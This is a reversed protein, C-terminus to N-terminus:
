VDKDETKAAVEFANSIAYFLDARDQLVTKRPDKVVDSTRGMEDARFRFGKMLKLLLIQYSTKM